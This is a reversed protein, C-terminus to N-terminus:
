CTEESLNAAVGAPPQLVDDRGVDSAQTPSPADSPETLGAAFAEIAEAYSPRQPGHAGCALCACQVAPMKDGFPDPFAWQLGEGAHGCHPCSPIDPMDDFINM